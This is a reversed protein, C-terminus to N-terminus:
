DSLWSYTVAPKKQAEDPTKTRLSLFPSLRNYANVAEKELAMLDDFNYTMNHYILFEQALRANIREALVSQYSHYGIFIALSFQRLVVLLNM